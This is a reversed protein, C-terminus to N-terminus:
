KRKDLTKFICVYVGNHPLYAVVEDDSEPKIESTCWERIDKVRLRRSKFVERAEFTIASELSRLSM